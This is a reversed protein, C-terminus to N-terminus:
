FSYTGILNHILKEKQETTMIVWQGKTSKYCSVILSSVALVRLLEQEEKNLMKRMHWPPIVFNLAEVIKNGHQIRLWEWVQPVFLVENKILQEFYITITWIQTDILDDLTTQHIAFFATTFNEETFVNDNM